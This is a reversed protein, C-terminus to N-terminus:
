TKPLPVMSAIRWWRAWAIAATLADISVGSPMESAFIPATKLRSVTSSLRNNGVNLSSSSWM